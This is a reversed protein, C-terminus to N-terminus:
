ERYFIEDALLVLSFRGLWEWSEFSLEVRQWRAGAKNRGGHVRLSPM